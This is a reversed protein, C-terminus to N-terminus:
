GGSKPDTGEPPWPTRPPLKGITEETGKRALLDRLEDPRVEFWVLGCGLCATV